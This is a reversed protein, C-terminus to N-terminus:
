KALDVTPQVIMIPGPAHDIVYGAANLIVETKGIQAASMVVIEEIDATISFSDLIERLYPTRSTRWPGPEASSKKPLRRYADAWESVLLQKEPRLGAARARRVEAVFTEDAKAAASRM